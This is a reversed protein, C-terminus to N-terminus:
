CSCAKTLKKQNVQNHVLILESAGSRTKRGLLHSV